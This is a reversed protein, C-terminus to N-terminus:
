KRRLTLTDRDDGLDLTRNAILRTMASRRESTPLDISQNKLLGTVTAPGQEVLGIVQREAARADEHRKKFYDSM